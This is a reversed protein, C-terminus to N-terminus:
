RSRRKLAELHMQGLGRQQESTYGLATSLTDPNTSNGRTHLGGRARIWEVADASQHSGTKILAEARTFSARAGAETALCRALWMAASGGPLKLMYDSLFSRSVGLGRALEQIKEGAALSDLIAGAGGREQVRALYLRTVPQGAMHGTQERQAENEGMCKLPGIGCQGSGSQAWPRFASERCIGV